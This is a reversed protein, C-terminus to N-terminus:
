ASLEAYLGTRDLKGNPGVPMVERWHIAKPQMFNPLDQMLKRPLETQPDAAGLAARVVLHVAHGLREDPIGLAVAEAVLGTAIAADEIEQPSIRNGASKIMADRRGVFYLLGDGDRRARDGSWVATGGFRSAVPAPKFREATREADQWYGQAVLPGCHVLEGEENDAALEGADNICVGFDFAIMQAKDNENPVNEGRPISRDTAAKFGPECIVEIIHDCADLMKATFAKDVFVPTEAIRFEIAGPYKSNLDALFAQYTAESFQQNFAARLEPVM